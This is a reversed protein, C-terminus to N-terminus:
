DADPDSLQYLTFKVTESKAAAGAWLIGIDAIMIEKDIDVSKALERSLDALTSDAYSKNKVHERIYKAKQGEVSDVNKVKYEIEPESGTGLRYSPTKPNNLDEYLVEAGASVTLFYLISITYFIKKIM